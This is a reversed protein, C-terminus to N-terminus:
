NKTKIFFFKPIWIKKPFCFKLLLASFKKKKKLPRIDGGFSFFFFFINGGGRGKKQTSFLFYFNSFDGNKKSIRSFTQGGGLIRVNDTSFFFYILM